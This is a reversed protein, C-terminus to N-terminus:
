EAEKLTVKRQEELRGAEVILTLKVDAPTNEANLIALQLPTLQQSSKSEILKENLYAIAETNDEVYSDVKSIHRKIEAVELALKALSDHIGALQPTPEAENVVEYNGDPVLYTWSAGKHKVYYGRSGLSDYRGSTEFVEGILDKHWGSGKTIRIKM